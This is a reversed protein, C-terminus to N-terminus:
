SSNGPVFNTAKIYIKTCQVIYPTVDTSKRKWSLTSHAVIIQYNEVHIPPAAISQFALAFRNPADFNATVRDHYSRFIMKEWRIKRRNFDHEFQSRSSFSVFHFNADLACERGLAPKHSLQSSCRTSM